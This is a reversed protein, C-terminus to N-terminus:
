NIFLVKEDDITYIQYKKNKLLNLRRNNDNIAEEKTEYREEYNCRIVNKSEENVSKEEDVKEDNNIFIMTEYWLDKTIGHNFELDATSVLVDIEKNDITLKINDHLRWRDLLFRYGCECIPAHNQANRNIMLKLFEDFSYTKGCKGCKWAKRNDWYSKEIYQMIGTNINPM